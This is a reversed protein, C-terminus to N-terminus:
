EHFEGPLFKVTPLGNGEVPSRGSDLAGARCASEKGNSGGPFDRM